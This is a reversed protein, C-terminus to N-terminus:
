DTYAIYRYHNEGFAEFRGGFTGKVVSEIEAKTVGDSYQGTVLMSSNSHYGTHRTFRPIPHVAAPASPGFETLATLEDNSTTM